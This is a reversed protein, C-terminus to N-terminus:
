SRGNWRNDNRLEGGRKEVFEYRIELGGRIQDCYPKAEFDISFGHEDAIGRIEDFEDKTLTRQDCEIIFGRESVEIGLIYARQVKKQIEDAIRLAKEEYGRIRRKEEDSLRKELTRDNLPSYVPIKRKEFISM